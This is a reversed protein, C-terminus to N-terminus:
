TDRTLHKHMALAYLFTEYTVYSIRIIILDHKIINQVQAYFYSYRCETGQMVVEAKGIDFQEEFLCLRKM